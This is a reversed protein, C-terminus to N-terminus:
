GFPDKLEPCILIGKNQNSRTSASQTTRDQHHHDCALTGHHAACQSDYLRARQVEKWPARWPAQGMHQSEGLPPFGATALPGGIPTEPSSHQSVKRGPRSMLTQHHCNWPYSACTSSQTMDTLVCIMVGTISLQSRLDPPVSSELSLTFSKRGDEGRFGGHDRGGERGRKGWVREGGM